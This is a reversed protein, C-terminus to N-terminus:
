ATAGRRPAQLRRGLLRRRAPAPQLAATTADAVSLGEGLHHGAASDKLVIGQAPWSTASRTPARSTARAAQGRAREDIREAIARRTSAAAPRCSPARRRSCCASRRAWAGEAARADERRARQPEGRGRARVAGVGRDAHQLRREDGRPLRRRAARELRARRCRRRTAGRRARHLPPAARQARRRPERRQLQVPQPLAHAAHLLPDDRRRLAELVDRITFFNGLSKSMKENDVNLFGNHMWVNAFRGAARARARRSRTRTTRSSCTWAAATSTSTSASCRRACRRASSTGARAAPATRREAVQRRRAREAKAAKWLVFDLPDEKGDLVAVREGARLQDISKGSLKGYGPFKRVAFNVDGNSRATPRPGEERADRDDRADAARVRHRAARADAARHRARRHGAHMAAIMEDTLQASRSAASSRASSSRTTSTPSTACTPSATASRRAALAPGRRLRDHLACPGHPLPRLDHHRLRVHPRPGARDAHLTETARTLTNHIRLTMRGLAAECRAAADADRRALATPM